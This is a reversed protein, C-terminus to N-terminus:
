ALSSYGRLRASRKNLLLRAPSRRRRRVEKKTASGFSELRRMVENPYLDIHSYRFQGEVMVPNAWGMEKLGRLHKTATASQKGIAEGMFPMAPVKTIRLVGEEIEDSPFGDLLWIFLTLHTVSMERDMAEQAFEEAKAKDCKFWARLLDRILRDKERQFM